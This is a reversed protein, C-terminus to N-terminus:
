ELCIKKFRDELSIEGEDGEQDNVDIDVVEEEYKDDNDIMMNSLLSQEYFKM